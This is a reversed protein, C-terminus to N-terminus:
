SDDSSVKCRQVHNLNSIIITFHPSVLFIITNGKQHLPHINQESTLRQTTSSPNNHNELQRSQVPGLTQQNEIGLNHIINTSTSQNLLQAPQLPSIIQANNSLKPDHEGIQSSSISSAILKLSNELQNLQSTGILPNNKLQLSAGTKSSDTSSPAVMQTGKLHELKKVISAITMQNDLSSVASKEVDTNRVIPTTDNPNTHLGLVASPTNSQDSKLTSVEVNKVVPVVNKDHFTESPQSSIVRRENLQNAQLNAVISAISALNNFTSSPLSINPQSKKLPDALLDTIPSTITPSIATPSNTTPSITAPSTTTSPTTIPTTIAPTSMSTTTIPPTPISTTSWNQKTKMPQTPIFGNTQKAKIEEAQLTKIIEAINVTSDSQSPFPSTNGEETKLQQVVSSNISPFVNGYSQVLDTALSSPSQEGKLHQTDLPNRIQKDKEQETPLPTASKENKVQETASSTTSQEGKLQETPLLSVNQVGSYQGLQLNKVVSAMNALVALPDPSTAANANDSHQFSRVFPSFNKQDRVPLADTVYGPFLTNFKFSDNVTQSSKLISATLNENGLSTISSLDSKKKDKGLLSQYDGDRNNLLQAFPSIPSSLSSISTSNDQSLLSSLMGAHELLKNTGVPTIVINRKRSYHIDKVNGKPNRKIKARRKMDRMEYKENRSKRKSRIKRVELIDVSRRGIHHKKVFHIERNLPKNAREDSLNINSLVAMGNNVDSLLIPDDVTTSSRPPLLPLNVGNSRPSKLKANREKFEEASLSEALAINSFTNATNRLVEKAMDEHLGETLLVPQHYHLVPPPELLPPLIDQSSSTPTASISLPLLPQASGVPNTVIEANSIKDSINMLEKELGKLKASLMYQNVKPETVTKTLPVIHKTLSEKSSTLMKDSFIGMPFWTNRNGRKDNASTDSTNEVTHTNGDSLLKVKNGLVLMSGELQKIKEVVYASVEAEKFSKENHNEQVENDIKEGLIDITRQLMRLTSTTGTVLNARELGSPKQSIDTSLHDIKTSLTSVIKELKTLQNGLLPDTASEEETSSSLTTGLRDIKVQLKQIAQTVPNSGPIQSESDLSKPAAKYYQDNYINPTITDTSISHDNVRNILSHITNEMLELRKDQNLDIENKNSQLIRGNAQEAHSPVPLFKDFTTIDKHKDEKNTRTDNSAEVSNGGLKAGLLSIEGQLRDVLKTAVNGKSNNISQSSKTKSIRNLLYQMQKELYKLKTEDINESFKDSTENQNGDKGSLEQLQKRSSHPKIVRNPGSTQNSVLGSSQNAGSTEMEVLPSLTKTLNEANM